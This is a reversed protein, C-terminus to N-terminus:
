PKDRTFLRMARGKHKNTFKKTHLKLPSNNHLEKTNLRHTKGSKEPLPGYLKKEIIKKSKKLRCDSLMSQCIHDHHWPHWKRQLMKWAKAKNVKEQKSQFLEWEMGKKYIYCYKLAMRLVVKEEFQSGKLVCNSNLCNLANILM